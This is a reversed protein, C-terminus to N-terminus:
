VGKWRKLAKAILLCVVLLAGSLFLPATQIQVTFDNLFAARDVSTGALIFVFAGPIIGVFTTWLFTAPSIKLAGCIFNVADFPLFAFRTILLNIALDTHLMDSLREGLRTRLISGAAVTRAMTYAVMASSTEAVITLALGYWLGFLVGSAFTLLTAPIFLLPRFSYCLIYLVPGLPHSSVFVIFTKLLELTSMGSQVRAYAFSAFITVWICLAFIRAGFTSFYARVVSMLHTLREIVIADAARKLVDAQTPYAFIQGALSQASEGSRLAHTLRPLIEGGSTLAVTGGLIRGTARLAHLIIFGQSTGTILARDNTTADIRVSILEDATYEKLLETRTGGVRAVEVQTYLTSPLPEHRYSVKWWPFLVNRIVSRGENNAWHTFSPNGEVCDGIAFIHTQSTQCFANTLIGKKTSVGAKELKLSDLVPARGLATLIHSYPHAVRTGEATQIHVHSDDVSQISAACYVSVGLTELHAQILASSEPEERPILLADRQILTVRSGAYAAAEALECGIYGGGVIVLNDSGEKLDFFEENTIVSEARAGAITMRQARSGTAIVINPASYETDRVVVIHSEAFQAEGYVVSIGEHELAAVSESDRIDQRLARAHNLAERLGCWRHARVYSLIAKSPVCGVNTCDGGIEAKEILLVKKGARALGRAVTLGGSGAGIVICDFVRTM